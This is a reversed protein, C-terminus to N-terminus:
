KTQRRKHADVLERLHISAQIATDFAEAFGLKVDHRGYYAVLAASYQLGWDLNAIAAELVAGCFYDDDTVCPQPDPRNEM